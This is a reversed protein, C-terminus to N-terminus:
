YFGPYLGFDPRCGCGQRGYADFWCEWHYRYPCAPRYGYYYNRYYGDGYSYNQALQVVPTANPAPSASRAPAAGIVSAAIAAALLTTVIIRESAMAIVLAPVRGLSPALGLLLVRGVAGLAGATGVGSQVSGLAGAM